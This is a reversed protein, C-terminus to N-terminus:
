KEAKVNLLLEPATQYTELAMLKDDSLTIKAAVDVKGTDGNADLHFAIMM